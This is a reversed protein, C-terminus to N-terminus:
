ANIIREHAIDLHEPVYEIGTFKRGAQRCAVGTSGSGMFPDFVHAGDDTADVLWRMVNVPKGTQHYKGGKLPACSYVGDHCAGQGWTRPKVGKCGVLVFEAQQSFFGNNPRVGRTKDWALVGRLTFGAYQIASQMAALQRWDSFIMVPSGDSLMDHCFSFVEGLWLTLSIQDRSDGTFEPYTRKTGTVGYKSRTSARIAQGAGGSSYPPDTILADFRAGSALLEPLILNANGRLLTFGDSPSFPSHIYSM